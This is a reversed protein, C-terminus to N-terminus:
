RRKAPQLKPLLEARWRSLLNLLDRRSGTKFTPNGDTILVVTNASGCCRGVELREWPGESGTHEYSGVHGGSYLNSAAALKAVLAVEAKSLDRQALVDDVRPQPLPTCSLEVRDVGPMPPQNYFVSLRCKDYRARGFDQFLTLSGGQLYSDQASSPTQVPLPVALLLSFITLTM